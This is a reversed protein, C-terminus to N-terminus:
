TLRLVPQQPMQLSRPQPQMKPQRTTFKRIKKKVRAPKELILVLNTLADM